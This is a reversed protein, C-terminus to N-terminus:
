AAERKRHSSQTALLAGTAADARPAHVRTRLVEIGIATALTAFHSGYKADNDRILLRPQEEFPTAERVHQTMRTDTPHRM